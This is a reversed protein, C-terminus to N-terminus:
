PEEPDLNSIATRRHRAQRREARKDSIAGFVHVVAPVLVPSLVLLLFISIKVYFDLNSM